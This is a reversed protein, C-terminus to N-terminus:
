KSDGIHIISIISKVEENSQMTLNGPMIWRPYAGSIKM